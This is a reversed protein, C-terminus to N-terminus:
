KWSEDNPLSSVDEFGKQWPMGFSMSFGFPSGNFTWGPNYRSPCGMVQGYDQVYSDFSESFRDLPILREDAIKSDGYFAVIELPKLNCPSNDDLGRVVFMLNQKLNIALLANRPYGGMNSTVCNIIEPYNTTTCYAPQEFGFYGKNVQKGGWLNGLRTFRNMGTSKSTVPKLNPESGSGVEWWERSLAPNASIIAFFVLLAKLRKM